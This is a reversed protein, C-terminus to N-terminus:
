RDQSAPRTARRVPPASRAEQTPRRRAPAPSRAEAPARREEGTARRTSRAPSTSTPTAPRRRPQEDVQDQGGRDQNGGQDENGDQRSGAVTDAAESAPNRLADARDRLQDSLSDIRSNVAAMAAAKGAEALDGRLLGAIEGLGPSVKGLADASGLSSAATKAGHRLLQGAPGGLGGTLAVTGLMILLKRKRRRGLLYGTGLALTVQPGSAM